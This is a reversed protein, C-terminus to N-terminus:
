ELNTEGELFPVILAPDLGQMAVIRRFMERRGEIRELREPEVDSMLQCYLALDRMVDDRGKFAASYQRILSQEAGPWHTKLWKALQTLM